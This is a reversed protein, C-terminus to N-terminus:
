EPGREDESGWLLDRLAVAAHEGSETIELWLTFPDPDAAQVLQDVAEDVLRLTTRLDDALPKLGDSSRPDLTGVEMLGTAVLVAIVDRAGYWRSAPSGDFGGSEAVNSSIVGVDVLVETGQNLTLLIARVL